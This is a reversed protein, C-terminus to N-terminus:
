IKEYLVLGDKEIEARLEPSLGAADLDVVDYCLLTSTDEELHERFQAPNGASVALDIDSARSFDGRARSGFLILRQIGDKAAWARIEELLRDKLGSTSLNGQM